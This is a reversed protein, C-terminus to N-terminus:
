RECPRCQLLSTMFLVAIKLLLSLLWRVAARSRRRPGPQHDHRDGVVGHTSQAESLAGKDSGGRGPRPAARRTSLVDNQGLGGAVRARRLRNIQHADRTTGRRGCWGRRASHNPRRALRSELVECVRPTPVVIPLPCSTSTPPLEARRLEARGDATAGDPTRAPPVAVGTRGCRM